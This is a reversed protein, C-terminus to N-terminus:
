DSAPLTTSTEKVDSSSSSLKFSKVNGPIGSMSKFLSLSLYLPNMQKEVRAAQRSIVSINPMTEEGEKQIHLPPNQWKQFGQNLPSIHIKQLLSSLHLLPSKSIKPPTKGLEESGQLTKCRKTTINILPPFPM